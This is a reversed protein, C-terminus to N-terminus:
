NNVATNIILCGGEWFHSVTALHDNSIAFGMAIDTNASGLSNALWLFNTAFGRAYEAKWKMLLLPHRKHMVNMHEILSQMTM